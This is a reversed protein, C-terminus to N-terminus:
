DIIMDMKEEKIFRKIKSRIEHSIRVEGRSYIKNLVKIAEKRVNKDPDMAIGFILRITDEDPILALQRITKIRTSPHQSYGLVTFKELAKGPNYKYLATLARMEVEKDKDNILPLLLKEAIKKEESYGALESEILKIGQIKNNPQLREIKENYRGASQMSNNQLGTSFQEELKVLIRNQYKLILKERKRSYYVLFIIFISLVILGAGVTYIYTKELKQTQEQLNLIMSKQLVETRSVIEQRFSDEHKLREKQFQIQMELLSVLTRIYEEPVQPPPSEAKVEEKEERIASLATQYMKEIHEDEPDLNRLRRLFPLARSFNGAEFNNYAAIHLSVGWLQRASFNDPNTEFGKEYHEVAKEYEGAVYFNEARNFHELSAIRASLCVIGVFFSIVAIIIKKM